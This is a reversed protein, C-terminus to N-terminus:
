YICIYRYDRTFEKKESSYIYIHAHVHIFTYVHIHVYIYLYICVYIYNCVCVCVCCRSSISRILSARTMAKAPSTNGCGTTREVVNAGRGVDQRGRSLLSSGERADGTERAFVHLGLV